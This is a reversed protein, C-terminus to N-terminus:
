NPLDSYIATLLEDAFTGTMGEIATNSLVVVTLRNWPPPASLIKSQTIGGHRPEPRGVNGGCRWLTLNLDAGVLLDGFPRRSRAVGVIVASDYLQSRRCLSRSEMQVACGVVSPRTPSYRKIIYRAFGPDAADGGRSGEASHVSDRCHHTRVNVLDCYSQTVRGVHRRLREGRAVARMDDYQYWHQRIHEEHVNEFSSVLCKKRGAKVRHDPDSVLVRAFLRSWGNQPILAIREIIWKSLGFSPRLTEQAAAKIAMKVIAM